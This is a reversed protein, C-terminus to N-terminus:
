NLPADTNLKASCKSGSGAKERSRQVEGPNWRGAGKGEPDQVLLNPPCAALFFWAGHGRGEEPPMELWLWAKEPSWSQGIWRGGSGNGGLPWVRPPEPDGRMVEQGQPATDARNETEVKGAM